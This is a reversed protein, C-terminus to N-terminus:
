IPARALAYVDARARDNPAFLVGPNRVSAAIGSLEALAAVQMDALLEAQGYSTCPTCAAADPAGAAGPDAADATAGDAGADANGTDAASGGGGGGSGGGVGSASADVTSGAAGSTDTTGGSAGGAGSAAQADRAAMDPSGGASCALLVAAVPWLRSVFAPVHSVSV